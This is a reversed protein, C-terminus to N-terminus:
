LDNTCKEMFKKFENVDKSIKMLTIVQTIQKSLNEDGIDSSLFQHHRYLRNGNENSPNKNKLENLVGPPLKEYVYKNIIKGVYQPHNKQINPYEWGHIRYVQKFFENPFKKTWPRLEESIYKELIKQLEDRCRQEVYGTADDVLSIIGVTALGYLMARCVDAVPLQQKQLVGEDDARVYVKCVEPLISAEYGILKKGDISKYLVQEGREQFYDGLYPTLNNSTIFVPIKLTRAREMDFNNPKSKGMAKSITKYRLIRRGDNLVDCHMEQGAIILIGSHTAKPITPHWRENVAKRAIESKTLNEKEQM